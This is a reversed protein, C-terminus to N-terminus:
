PAVFDFCGIGANENAPLADGGDVGRYRLLYRGAALPRDFDPAATSGLWILDASVLDELYFNGLETQTEPPPADAVQIAGSVRAVAVDVDLTTEGARVVIGSRIVAAKNVPVIADSIEAEYVVDYTGPVVAASYQALRTNGLLVSDGNEESRLYVRGDDYVSEPPVEGSIALTGSVRAVPIDLARTDDADIKIRRLFANTNGPM